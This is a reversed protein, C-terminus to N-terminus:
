IRKVTGTKLAYEWDYRGNQAALSSAKDFDYMVRQHKISWGSMTKELIAYSAEHCNNEIFHMHPEEDRYAQLGVSGANLVTQCTQALFVIKPLHSHGCLILPVNVGQLLALIKEEDRTVAFGSQTEELLYVLDDDPTGHCLFIEDELILTAPLSKLWQLPEKGLDKLVYQMTSNQAIEEQKAELIQRDQNGCITIFNNKKLLEYTKKPAIPGYFIDGLNIKIDVAYSKLDKLVAELAFVNSHIDSLVAIKVGVEM